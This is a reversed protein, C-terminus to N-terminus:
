VELGRGGGGWGFGKESYEERDLKIKGKRETERSSILGLSDCPKCSRVECPLILYLCFFSVFM